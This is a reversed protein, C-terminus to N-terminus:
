RAGGAVPEPTTASAQAAAHEDVVWQVAATRTKFDNDATREVHVGHRGEHMGYGAWWRIGGRQGSAWGVMGIVDDPSTPPENSGTLYYVEPGRDNTFSLPMHPGAHLWLGCSRQPKAGYGIRDASTLESSTSGHATELHVVRCKGCVLRVTTEDRSGDPQLVSNDQRLRTVEWMNTGHLPCDAAHEALEQFGFYHDSISLSM